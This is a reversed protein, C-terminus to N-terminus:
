GVYDCPGERYRSGSLFCSAIKINLLNLILEVSQSGPRISNGVHRFLGARNLVAALCDLVTGIIQLLVEVIADGSNHFNQLM